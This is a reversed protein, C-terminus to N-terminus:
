LFEFAEWYWIDAKSRVMKSFERLRSRSGFRLIRHMIEDALGAESCIRYVQLFYDWEVIVDTTRLDLHYFPYWPKIFKSMMLSWEPRNKLFEAAERENPATVIGPKDLLRLMPILVPYCQNCVLHLYPFFYRGLDGPHKASLYVACVAAPKGFMDQSCCSCEPHKCLSISERHFNNM